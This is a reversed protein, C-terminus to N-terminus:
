IKVGLLEHYKELTLWDESYNIADIFDRRFLTSNRVPPPFLHQGKSVRPMNEKRVQIHYYIPDAGSIEKAYFFVEDEVESGPSTPKVGAYLNKDKRSEVYYQQEEREILCAYSTEHPEYTRSFVSPTVVRLLSNFLPM